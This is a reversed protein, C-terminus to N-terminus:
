DQFMIIIIMESHAFKGVIVPLGFKDMAQRRLSLHFFSLCAWLAFPRRKGQKSMAKAPQSVMDPCRLLKDLISTM